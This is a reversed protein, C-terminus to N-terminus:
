LKLANLLPLTVATNTFGVELRMLLYSAVDVDHNIYRSSCGVM